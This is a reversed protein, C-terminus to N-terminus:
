PSGEEKQWHSKNFQLPPYGDINSAKHSQNILTNQVKKTRPPVLDIVDIEWLVPNPNYVLSEVAHKSRKIISILLEHM